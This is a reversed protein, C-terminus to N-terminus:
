GTRGRIRTSELRTGAYDLFAVRQAGDLQAALRDRHQAALQFCLDSRLSAGVEGMLWWAEVGAVAALSSSLEELAHTTPPEADLAADAQLRLIEGLQAYRPAYRDIAMVILGEALGLATEPAGGLLAIRGELLEVRLEHRWRYAYRDQMRERAAALASTAESVDHAALADDCPDLLAYVELERYVSERAAEVAVANCERAHATEGINRLV